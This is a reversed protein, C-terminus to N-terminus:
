PRKGGLTNMMTGDVLFGGHHVCILDVVEHRDLVGVMPV